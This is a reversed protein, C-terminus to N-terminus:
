MPKSSRPWISTAGRGALTKQVVRCEFNVPCDVIIPSSVQSSPALTWGCTRAKDPDDRGSVTGCYDVGVVQSGSPVNLTFSTERDIFAASYHFGGIRLAILSPGNGIIGAWAVTMINATGEGTKVALLLTPMPFLRTSPGLLRKAM